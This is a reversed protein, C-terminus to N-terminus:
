ELVIHERLYFKRFTRENTWYAARLIEVVPVGTVYTHTNTVSLSWVTVTSAVTVTSVPKCPRVFLIFLKSM